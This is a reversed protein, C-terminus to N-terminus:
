DTDSVRKEKGAYVAGGPAPFTNEFVRDDSM